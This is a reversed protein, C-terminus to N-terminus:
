ALPVLSVDLSCTWLFITIPHTSGDFRMDDLIWDLEDASKAERILRLCM